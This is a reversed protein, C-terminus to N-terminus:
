TGGGDIQWKGNSSLSSIERAVGGKELFYRVVDEFPDGKVETASKTDGSIGLQTSEVYKVLLTKYCDSDWGAFNACMRSLRYEDSSHYKELYCTYEDPTAYPCTKIM